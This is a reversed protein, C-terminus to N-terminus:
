YSLSSSNENIVVTDAWLRFAPAFTDKDNANCVFQVCYFYDKSEYAFLMYFNKTDNQKIAYCTYVCKAKCEDAIIIDSLMEVDSEISQLCYIVYGVLSLQPETPKLDRREAFAMHNSRYIADARENDDEDKILGSQMTISFDNITYTEVDSILGALNLKQEASTGSCALMTLSCLFVAVACLAALFKGKM